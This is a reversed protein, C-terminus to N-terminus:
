DSPADQFEAYLLLRAKEWDRQVTRESAGRAAAIEAFSFGCFYKLDVVEALREDLARLREIADALKQLGTDAPVSELLQTSLHTIHFDAGRKLARRERAADIVLGRIARAAYALFRGRDPFSLEPRDALKLYAEHVLTTASVGLDPRNRAERDAVRRIEAYLTTFLSEASGGVAGVPGGREPVDADGSM